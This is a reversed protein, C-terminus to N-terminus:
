IDEVNSTNWKSIDPLLSLSKCESFMFSMNTINNYGKLKIKIIDNSNFNDDIDNIYECLNYENEGNDENNYIIKCKDINNEVFNKGFIPLKEKKEIEENDEYEKNDNNLKYNLEIELNEDNIESYLYLLGNLNYGYNYEDKM